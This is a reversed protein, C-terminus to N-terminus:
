FGQRSTFSCENLRHFHKAAVFSGSPESHAYSILSSPYRATAILKFPLTHRTELFRFDKLLCYGYELLKNLMASKTRDSKCRLSSKSKEM